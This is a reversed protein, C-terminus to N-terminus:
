GHLDVKIGYRENVIWDHLTSVPVGIMEAAIRINGNCLAVAKEVFRAITTAVIHPHPNKHRGCMQLASRGIEVIMGPRLEVSGCNVRVGNVAFKNASDYEQLYVKNNKRRLFCHVNEEM